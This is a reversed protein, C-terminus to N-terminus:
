VLLLVILVIETVVDLVIAVLFLFMSSDKSHHFRETFLSLLLMILAIM